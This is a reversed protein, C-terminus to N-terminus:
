FRGFLTMRLSYVWFKCCLTLKIMIKDKLIRISRESVQDLDLKQTVSCVEQTSIDVFCYITYQPNAWKCVSDTVKKHAFAPKMQQIQYSGTQSKSRNQHYRHGLVAYLIDWSNRVSEKSIVLLSHIFHFFKTKTLEASPGSTPKRFYLM